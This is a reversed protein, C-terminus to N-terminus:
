EEEINLLDENMKHVLYDVVDKVSIMGVPVHDEDVIPIHRFGGLSMLNLAFAITGDFKQTQPDKTMVQSIITNGLDIDTNIVKLLCDRETFIGVLKETKDIVLVSGISYKRLLSIVFLLTDTEKVCLPKKPNLVSISQSLFSSSVVGFEQKTSYKIALNVEDDTMSLVKSIFDTM